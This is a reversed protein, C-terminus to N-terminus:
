WDLAGQATQLKEKGDIVNVGNRIPNAETDIEDRLLGCLDM